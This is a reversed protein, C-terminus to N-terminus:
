GDSAQPGDDPLDPRHYGKELAAVDLDCTALDEVTALPFELPETIELLKLYGGCTTCAEVLDGPRDARPAVREISERADCYICRDPRPAWAWGCFSCRLVRTTTIREAFAPWSGCAPCLGRTWTGSVDSVDQLASCGLLHALPAVALEGILWLLDPALSMQNAGSLIRRRDRALATTLWSAADIAGRDYADRVHRAADGAGGDAVIDAFERLLPGLIAVAPPITEGRLAPVGRALKSRVYAAPFSPLIDPDTAIQDLAVLSRLVLLRQVGIPPELEPREAVLTTWRREARERLRATDPIM